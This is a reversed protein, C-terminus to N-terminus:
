GGCATLANNVSRVLLAIDVAAGSPIGNACASPEATDLAINVLTVLEDVAVRGSADCDGTCLPPTPTLTATPASPSATVTATPTPTLTATSTPLLERLAALSEACDLRPFSLGNTSDTVSTTSSELLMELQDPRLTPAVELLNAACATAMAAASATGSVISTSGNLGTTVIRVGPAFVDTLENSNSFCVVQDVQPTADQCGASPSGECRVGPFNGGDINEGYVAGVSFANAVCAPASM